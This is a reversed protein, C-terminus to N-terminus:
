RHVSWALESANSALAMPHYFNNCNKLYQKRRVDLVKDGIFTIYAAKLRTLSRTIHVSEETSKTLTQSQSIYTTLPISITKGSLLYESPIKLVQISREFIVNLKRMMFISCRQFIKLVWLQNLVVQM